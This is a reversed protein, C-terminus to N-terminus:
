NKILEEVTTGLHEAIKLLKDTKPMSKGARWDSFVVPSFGLNKAVAYFSTKNANVLSEVKQFSSIRQERSM